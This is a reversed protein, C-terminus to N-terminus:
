ARYLRQQILYELVGPSLAKALAARLRDDSTAAACCARVRSSRVSLREEATFLQWRQAIDVARYFRNWTEPDANDPGRVFILEVQKGQERYQQELAVLLDYTYVPHGPTRDLLQAELTCVEAPVPLEVEALLKNLMAVRQSFSTMQKAFAHAASPVLLLRDVSGAAQRMVDLHGLTPPDFASGLVGIKLSM